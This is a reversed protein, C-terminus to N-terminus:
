FQLFKIIADLQDQWFVMMLILGVALLFGIIAIALAFRLWRIKTRLNDNEGEIIWFYRRKLNKKKTPAPAAPRNPLRYVADQDVPSQAMKELCEDCFTTSAGLKKGCKICSLSNVGQLDFNEKNYVIKGIGYLSFHLILRLIIYFLARLFNEPRM